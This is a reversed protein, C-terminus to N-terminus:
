TTAWPKWWAWANTRSSWGCAVWRVPYGPGAGQSAAPLSALKPRGGQDRRVRRPKKRYGEANVGVAVLLNLCALAAAGAGPTPRAGATRRRYAERDQISPPWRRGGKRVPEEGRRGAATEQLDGIVADIIDRVVWGTPKGFWIGNMIGGFTYALVGAVGVVRFVRLYATGPALVSGALYAILASIVLAVLFSLAMNKGMNPMGPM